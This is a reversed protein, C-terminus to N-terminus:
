YISKYMNKGRKPNRTKKARLKEKIVIYVNKERHKREDGRLSRGGNSGRGNRGRWSRGDCGSVIERLWKKRM